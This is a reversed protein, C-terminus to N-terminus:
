KKRRQRERSELFKMSQELTYPGHFEGRKYQALAEQLDRDLESRLFAEYKKRPIVVFEGSKILSKIATMNTM